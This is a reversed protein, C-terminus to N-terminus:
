TQTLASHRRRNLMAYASVLACTHQQHVLTNQNRQTHTCLGCSASTQLRLKYDYAATFKFCVVLKLSRGTVCLFFCCRSTPADMNGSSLSSSRRRRRQRRPPAHARAGVDDLTTLSAAGHRTRASSEEHHRWCRHWCHCSM